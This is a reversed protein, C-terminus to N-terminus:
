SKRTKRERPLMDGKSSLEGRSLLAGATMLTSLGVPIAILGVGIIISTMDLHAQHPTHIYKHVYTHIDRSFKPESDLDQFTLFRSSDQCFTPFFLSDLM